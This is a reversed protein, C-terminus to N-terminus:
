KLEELLVGLQRAGAVTLRAVARGDHYITLYRRESAPVDLRSPLHTSYGGGLPTITKTHM